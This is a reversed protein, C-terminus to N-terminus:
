AYRRAPASACTSVTVIDMVGYGAVLGDVAVAVEGRVLGALEAVDPGQVM